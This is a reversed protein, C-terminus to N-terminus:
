SASSRTPTCWGAAGLRRWRAITIARPRSHSERPPVGLSKASANRRMSFCRKSPSRRLAWRAGSSRTSACPDRAAPAPFNRLDENTLLDISLKSAVFMALRNRHLRRRPDREAVATRLVRVAEYFAYELAAVRAMRDDAEIALSGRIDVLVFIREDGAAERSRGHFCYIGRGGELREIEFASLRRLDIRDAAEPHVQHLGSAVRVGKPSCVFTVHEDVSGPAIPTVTLRRAAFGSALESEFREALTALNVETTSPILLEIADVGLCGDDERIAAATACLAKAAGMADNRSAALGLVTRGDLLDLRDIARGDSLLISHLVPSRPAYFRRLHAALAIARRREDSAAIWSGVRDFLTQPAAALEELVEEPPATFVLETRRLWAEARHAMRQAMRELEPRAFIAYRAQVAADALADPVLGRLKAIESLARALHDDAVVDIGSRALASVREILALAIRHRHQVAGRAALLRLAARELVTGPSLERIGYHVLAKGLRRVFDGSLGATGRRMQRVYVRLQADNSLGVEGSALERPARHFLPEIDAFVEIEERIEALEARFTESLKATIPAELFAVVRDRMSPDADYGLLAGRVEARLAHLAPRREHVDLADIASLDRLCDERSGAAAWLAKLPDSEVDLALRCPVEAISRDRKRPDIVVLLDGAAIQQGRKAALETVIGGLPANFPIEVKMAELVGLPQGAEVRDGSCVLLQVVRAATAARVEGATQRGFRHLHGEVDVRIGTDGADYLVRMTRSGLSFRAVHPQEEDWIATAERDGLRVRYKAPTLAFVELPYDQGLYDLDVAIGSTDPVRAPSLSALGTFYSRRAEDSARRYCLIGAAVLAEPAYRDRLTRRRTWRDLWRIDVEGRRYEPACLADILYGRNTAGGEVVVDFDSLASVLRARADDRDRGTAIVKAVLSDFGVPIESGLAAGTDVRVGHGLAPDFRVIRGPAPLFSEDADEACLRAEIAVGNERVGLERISEGRAIRIQLQVLDVGTIAETIGHEVQLRSNVELLYFQDSSVLFEVTGVGVYRAKRALRVAADELRARLSAALNAPPAEEILKQHRRQLSCDRCGVSRVFGYGDAVIQVEIHRGGPAFRELFVRDDGFAGKAETAASRLASELGTSSEVTRIGRGGGGAAAKLMLPYGIPEALEAAAAPGRIEVGSWPLVPVGLAEALRKAEIKDGLLRMAEAPPGLFCIGEARIRDAFDPDEAVFGWGPWVADAGARRVADVLLDHDLYARGEPNRDPLRLARDAHRVFPAKRDMRTYLALAELDSGEGERLAKVARICRMAAEGRNVIALCRISRLSAL